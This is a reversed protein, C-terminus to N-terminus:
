STVVSFQVKKQLMEDFVEYVKEWEGKVLWVKIMINFTVINPRFDMEHSSHFADNAESFM